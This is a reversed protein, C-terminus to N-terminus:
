GEVQDKKILNIAYRQGRYDFFAPFREPDVVRLLDFQEAISKTPDIRSDEPTRKRFYTPNVDGQPKPKVSNFQSVAFDMLELEVAFLKENIEHCLEHGELQLTRQEWIHGSDVADEVELLTVPITNKGELIQWIHPSWGRGEPVDSAHIVLSTNYMERVERGIIENCSILFLIDGGSLDKRDGVLEVKHGESSKRERWLEIFRYIPHRNSSCFISIKM